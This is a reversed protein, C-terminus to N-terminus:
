GRRNIRRAKKAVRNRSRNVIRNEFRKANTIYTETGDYTKNGGKYSGHSMAQLTSRQVTEPSKYVTKEQYHHDGISMSLELLNQRRHTITYSPSSRDRLSSLILGFASNSTVNVVRERMREAELAAIYGTDVFATAALNRLYEVIDDAMHGAPTDAFGSDPVITTTPFFAESFDTNINLETINEALETATDIDMLQLLSGGSIGTDGMLAALQFSKIKDLEGNPSHM